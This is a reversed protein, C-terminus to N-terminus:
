GALERPLLHRPEDLRAAGLYRDREARQVTLVLQEDSLILDVVRRARHLHRHHDLEETLSVLALESSLSGSVIVLVNELMM